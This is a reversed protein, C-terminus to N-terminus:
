PTALSDVVLLQYRCIRVGLHRVSNGSDPQCLSGCEGVSSAFSGAGYIASKSRGHGGVLQIANHGFCVAM